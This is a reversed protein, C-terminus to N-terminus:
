DEQLAKRAAKKASKLDKTTGSRNNNTEWHYTGTSSETIVIKKTNIHIKEGTPTHTPKTQSQSGFSILCVAVIMLFQNIRKM